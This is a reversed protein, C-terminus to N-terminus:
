YAIYIFGKIVRNTQGLKLVYYYTGTAVREPNKLAGKRYRGDWSNNYDSSEYVPQGARTYIILKSGKYKELGKFELLDNVGDGNPSFGEPIFLYSDYIDISVKASDCVSGINCVTQNIVLSFKM